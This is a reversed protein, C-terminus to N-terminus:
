AEQRIRDPGLEKMGWFKRHINKIEIPIKKTWRLQSWEDSGSFVSIKELNYKIPGNFDGKKFGDGGQGIAAYDLIPWALESNVRSVVFGDTHIAFTIRM